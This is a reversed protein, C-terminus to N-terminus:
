ELYASYEDIHLGRPRKKIDALRSAAVLRRDRMNKTALKEAMTMSECLDKERERYLCADHELDDLYAEWAQSWTEDDDKNIKSSISFPKKQTLFWEAFQEYDDEEDTKPELPM